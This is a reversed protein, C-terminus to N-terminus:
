SHRLQLSKLSNVLLEPPIRPDVHLSEARIAYNLLYVGYFRFLSQGLHLRDATVISIPFSQVTSQIALMTLGCDLQTIGKLGIRLFKGSGTQFSQNLAVIRVGFLARCETLM